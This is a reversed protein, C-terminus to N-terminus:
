HIYKQVNKKIWTRGAYKGATVTVKKRSNMM